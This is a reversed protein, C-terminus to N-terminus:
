ATVAAKDLNPVGLTDPDDPDKTWFRGACHNLALAALHVGTHQLSLADRYDRDVDLTVREGVAPPGGDVGHLVVASINPDGRKDSADALAGTTANWLAERSDTVAVRRGDALTMWGRDGPQDPWSLSAPHFPTRDTAILWGDDGRTVFVVEAGAALSGGAFTVWTGETNWDM